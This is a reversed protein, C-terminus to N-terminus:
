HLSKKKEIGFRNRGLAKTANYAALLEERKTQKNMYSAIASSPNSLNINQEEFYKALPTQIGAATFTVFLDMIQDKTPNDPWLGSAIGDKIKNESTVMLEEKRKSQSVSDDKLKNEAATERGKQKAAYKNDAVRLIDAIQAPQMDPYSERIMDETLLNTPSTKYKKELNKFLDVSDKFNVSTISMDREPFPVYQIKDADGGMQALINDSQAQWYKVMKQNDEALKQQEAKAVPNGTLVAASSLASRVAADAQMMKSQANNYQQSLLQQKRLARNEDRDLRKEETNIDFEKRRSAEKNEGTISRELDPAQENSMMQWRSLKLMDQEKKTLPTSGRAGKRMLTAREEEEEEEPENTAAGQRLVPM